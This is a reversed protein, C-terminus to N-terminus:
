ASISRKLEALEDQLKEVTEILARVMDMRVPGNESTQYIKGVNKRLYEEQATLVERLRQDM